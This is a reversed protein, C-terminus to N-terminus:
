FVTPDIVVLVQADFVVNNVVPWWRYIGRTTQILDGANPTYTATNGTIAGWTGTGVQEQGTSLNVFHMAMQGASIGSLSFDGSDTTFTCAFGRDDGISRPSFSM